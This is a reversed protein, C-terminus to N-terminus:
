PRSATCNPSPPACARIPDWRFTLGAAVNWNQHDQLRVSVTPSVVPLVRAELDATFGQLSVGASAALWRSSHGVGMTFDGQDLAYRNAMLTAFVHLEKFGLWLVGSPIVRTEHERQLSGAGGEIGGYRGHWGVRGEVAFGQRAADPGQVVASSSGSADAAVTVGNDNRYRVNAAYSTETYYTPIQEGCGTVRYRGGGVSGGMELGEEPPAAIAILWLGCLASRLGGM